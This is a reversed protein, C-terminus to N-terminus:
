NIEPLTDWLLDFMDIFVDVMAEGEIVIGLVSLHPNMILIKDNLIDISSRFTYSDPIIKIHRNKLNGPEYQLGSKKFIIRTDIGNEDLKIRFHQLFYQDVPLWDEISALARWQEYKKLGDLYFQKLQDPTNLFGVGKGQTQAKHILEQIKKDM